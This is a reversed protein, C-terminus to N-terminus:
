LCSCSEVVESTSIPPRRVTSAPAVSAESTVAHRIKYSGIEVTVTLGGYVSKFPQAVGLNAGGLLARTILSIM